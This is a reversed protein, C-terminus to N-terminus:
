TVELYYILYISLKSSASCLSHINPVVYCYNAEHKLMVQLCLLLYPMVCWIGNLFHSNVLDHFRILFHKAKSSDIKCLACENPNDFPVELVYMSGFGQAVTM